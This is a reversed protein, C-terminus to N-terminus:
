QLYEVSIILITKRVRKKNRNKNQPRGGEGKAVGQALLLQFDLWKQADIIRM